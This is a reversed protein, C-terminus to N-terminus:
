RAGEGGLGRLLEAGRRCRDAAALLRLREEGDRGSARAAQEHIEASLELEGVCFEIAGPDGKMAGGETRGPANV